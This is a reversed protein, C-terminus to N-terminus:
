GSCFPGGPTGEGRSVSRHGIDLFKRVGWTALRSLELRQNRGALSCQIGNRARNAKAIGLSQQDGEIGLRHLQPSPGGVRGFLFAEATRVLQVKGVSTRQGATVTGHGGRNSSSRGYAVGFNNHRPRVARAKRGQDIDASQAVVGPIDLAGDVAKLVDGFPLLDFFFDPSSRLVQLVKELIARDAKMDDATFANDKAGVFGLQSQEPVARLLVNAAVDRLKM